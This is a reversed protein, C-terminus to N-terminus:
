DVHRVVSCLIINKKCGTMHHVDSPCTCHSLSFCLSNWLNQTVTLKALAEVSSGSGSADGERFSNQGIGKLGSPIRVLGM